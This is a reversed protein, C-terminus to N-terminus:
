RVVAVVLGLIRRLIGGHIYNLCVCGLWRFRLWGRPVGVGIRHEAGVFTWM